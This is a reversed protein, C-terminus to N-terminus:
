DRTGSYALLDGLYQDTMMVDRRLRVNTQEIYRQIRRVLWMARGSPLEGTDEEIMAAVAQGPLDLQHSVAEDALSLWVDCNRAAYARQMRALHRLSDPPEVVILRLVPPGELAVSREAPSCAVTLSGTSRVAALAAREQEDDAGRLLGPHLGAAALAAIAAKASAPPL